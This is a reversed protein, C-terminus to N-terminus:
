YIDCLRASNGAQNRARTYLTYSFLIKAATLSHLYERELQTSLDPGTIEYISIWNWDPIAAAATSIWNAPRTRVYFSLDIFKGACLEAQNSVNSEAGTSQRKGLNMAQEIYQTIAHM